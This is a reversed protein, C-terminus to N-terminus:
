DYSIIFKAFFNQLTDMYLLTCIWSHSRKQSHIISREYCLCRHIYVSVFHLFLWYISILIRLVYILPSAFPPSENAVSGKKQLVLDYSHYTDYCSPPLFQPDSVPLIQGVCLKSKYYYPFFNLIFM